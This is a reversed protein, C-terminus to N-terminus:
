VICPALIDISFLSWIDINIMAFFLFNNLWQITANLIWCVESKELAVLTLYFAKYFKLRALVAEYEKVQSQLSFCSKLFLIIFM